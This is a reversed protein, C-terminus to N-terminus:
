LAVVVAVTVTVEVLVVVVVTVAVGVTVAVAVIVEHAGTPVTVTTTSQQFPVQPPVQSAPPPWYRQPAEDHANVSESGAPDTTVSISAETKNTASQLPPPCDNETETAPM